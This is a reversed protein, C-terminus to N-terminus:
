RPSNIYYKRFKLIAIDCDHVDKFVCGQIGKSEFVDIECEM